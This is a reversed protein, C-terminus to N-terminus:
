ESIEGLGKKLPNANLNGNATTVFSTGPAIIRIKEPRHNEYLAFQSEAENKSSAIIM